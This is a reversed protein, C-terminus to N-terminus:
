YKLASLIFDAAAGKAEGIMVMGDESMMELEFPSECVVTWGEEELLKIDEPDM